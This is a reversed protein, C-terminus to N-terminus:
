STSLQVTVDKTSITSYTNDLVLYYIGASLNVSVTGSAVKGSNYLVNTPQGRQYQDYETQDFIYVIINNGLTATASFSGTVTTPSNLTFQFSRYQGPGVKYSGSVITSGSKAPNPNYNQNQQQSGQGTLLSEVYNKLEQYISIQREAHYPISIPIGILSFHAQGNVQVDLNGGSAVISSAIETVRSTALDQEVPVTITQGANLTTDVTASGGGVELGNIALDHTEDPIYVPLVGNNILAIQINFKISNILNLAAGVYIGVLADAGIRLLLGPSLPAWNIGGYSVGTVQGGLKSYSYGVTGATLLSLAVLAVAVKRGTGM